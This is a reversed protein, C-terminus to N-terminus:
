NEQFEISQEYELPSFTFFFIARWSYYNRNTKTKKWGNKYSIYSTSALTLTLQNMKCDRSRYLTKNEKKKKKELARHQARAIPKALTFIRNMFLVFHFLLLPSALMQSARSNRDINKANGEYELYIRKKRERVNSRVNKSKTVGEEKTYSCVCKPGNFHLFLVVVVVAVFFGVLLLSVFSKQFQIFFSCMLVFINIFAFSRSRQFPYKKKKEREMSHTHTHLVTHINIDIKMKNLIM